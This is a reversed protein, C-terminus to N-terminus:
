PEGALIGHLEVCTGGLAGMYAKWQCAELAEMCVMGYLAEEGAAPDECVNCMVDHALM